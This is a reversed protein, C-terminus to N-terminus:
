WFLRWPATKWEKRKSKGIFNEYRNSLAQKMQEPLVRSVGVISLFMAKLAEKYYNRIIRKKMLHNIM